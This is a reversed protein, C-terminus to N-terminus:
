SVLIIIYNKIHLLIGYRRSKERKSMVCYIVMGSKRLKEFNRKPTKGRERMICLYSAYSDLNDPELNLPELRVSGNYM